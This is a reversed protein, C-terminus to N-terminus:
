IDLVESIDFGIEVCEEEYWIDIFHGLVLKNEDTDFFVTAVISKYNVDFLNDDYIMNYGELRDSMEDLSLQNNKDVIDKLELYDQKAIEIYSIKNEMDFEGVKKDGLYLDFDEPNFQNINWLSKGSALYWCGDVKYIELVQMDKKDIVKLGQKLEFERM